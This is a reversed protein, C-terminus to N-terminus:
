RVRKPLSCGSYFTRCGTDGAESCRTMGDSIAEDRTEASQVFFLKDGSIMSACQNHYALTIECNKGGDRECMRLANKEATKRTDIDTSTGLAANAGDTAIAGWQTKWSPRSDNSASSAQICGEWGAGKQLVSGPPCASATGCLFSMGILTVTLIPKM